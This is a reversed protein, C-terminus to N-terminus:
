AAIDKFPQIVKLSGFVTKASLTLYADLNPLNKYRTVDRAHGHVIMTRNGDIITLYGDSMETGDASAM